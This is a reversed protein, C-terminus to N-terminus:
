NQHFFYYIKEAVLRNIGSVTMLDDVNARGVGAASGFHQLLMKKRKAGIGPIDDLQSRV